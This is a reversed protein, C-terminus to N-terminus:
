YFRDKQLNRWQVCACLFSVFVCWLAWWFVYLVHLFLVLHFCDKKEWILGKWFM